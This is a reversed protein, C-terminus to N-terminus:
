RTAPYKRKLLEVALAEAATFVTELPNAACYNDIWGALGDFDTGAVLDGITRQEALNMGSFFGGLWAQYLQRSLGGANKAQTWKGCSSNGHGVVTIPRASQNPVTAPSAQAMALAVLGAIM